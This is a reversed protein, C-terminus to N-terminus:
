EEDFTLMMARRTLLPSTETIKPWDHADMCARRSALVAPRARAIVVDEYEDLAARIAPWDEGQGPQQKQLLPVIRESFDLVDVIAHNAGEGRYMAMAHFADGMLAVRDTSRLDKPPVYDQLDLPKIDTDDPITRIISRFPDAWTGALEELFKHREENTAPFDLPEARGLFGGRYPWSVCMQCSYAGSSNDSNGPADLVSIYIFSDNESSTGQLFFPDMQLIPKIQEPTLSVKLGMARIPLGHTYHRDPFLARRLRSNTGDCAVLLCGRCHSGDEFLVTVSGDNESRFSQFAKGWEVQIGTALLRRLKERTVRIRQSEPARPTEAKLQGTSLDYFPFRSCLGAAVAAQDVYAGPIRHVLPEPLLARLAPLSWHLTLGWGVGRSTFDDDREFVRVPLGHRRLSQALLLGSIGAGVIVVPLPSSSTAMVPSTEARSPARTRPRPAPHRTGSPATGHLLLRLRSSHLHIDQDKRTTAHSLPI